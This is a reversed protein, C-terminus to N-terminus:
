LAAKIADVLKADGPEVNSAWRKVVQGDRNVLFKEFNWGIDRGGGAESGVLWDYLPQRDSGNVDQKALM